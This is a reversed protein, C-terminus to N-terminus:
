EGSMAFTSITTNRHAFMGLRLTDPGNRIRLEVSFGSWDASDVRLAFTVV